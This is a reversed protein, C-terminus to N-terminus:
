REESAALMAKRGRERNISGCRLSCTKGKGRRVEAAKAFFVSGCVQCERQVRPLAPAYAIGTLLRREATKKADQRRHKEQECTPCGRYRRGNAMRFGDVLAHGNKCHTRKAYNAFPSIGRLNNEAVTVAEMHAPNLCCRVRCLHDVVLGGIPGNIAEYIMRHVGSKKGGRNVTAYGYDNLAGTWIWCGSEPVREIRNELTALLSNAERMAECACTM